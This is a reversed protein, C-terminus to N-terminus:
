SPRGRTAFEGKKVSKKAYDIVSKPADVGGEILKKAARIRTAMGESELSFGRLVSRDAERRLAEAYSPDGLPEVTCRCNPHLPPAELDEDNYSKDYSLGGPFLDGPDAALGSYALCEVCADTEAVWVTPLDAADAVLTTADNGSMNISSTVSARTSNAAAFLPTCVADLEAGAALLKRALDLAEANRADLGDLTGVARASPGAKAAKSNAAKLIKDGVRQGKIISLASARGINFADAVALKAGAEIKPAILALVQKRTDVDENALDRRIEDISNLWGDGASALVKAELALLERQTATATGAM